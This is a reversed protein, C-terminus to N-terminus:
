RKASRAKQSWEDAQRIVQAYDDDSAALDAKERLCLSMFVMADGSDPDTELARALQKVADDYVPGLAGRVKEDSLPGSDEPELHLQARADTLQAHAKLWAIVGLWYYGDKPHIASLKRYCGAARDLMALKEGTGALNQAENFELWGLSQLAARSMPEIELAKRLHEEAKKAVPAGPRYQKLYANALYVRTEVSDPRAAAAQELADVAQVYKGHRYAQVGNDFSTRWKSSCSMACVALALVLRSILM